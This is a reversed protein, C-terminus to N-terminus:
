GEGFTLLATILSDRPTRQDDFGQEGIAHAISNVCFTSHHVAFLRMAGAYFLGGQDFATRLACSDDTFNFFCVFFFLLFSTLHPSVVYGSTAGAM